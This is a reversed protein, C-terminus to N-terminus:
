GRFAGKLTDFFGKRVDAPQGDRQGLGEYLEREAGTLHTPVAVHVICLQDGRRGSRV